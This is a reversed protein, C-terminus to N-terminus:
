DGLSVSALYVAHQAAFARQFAPRAEARAIYQMLNAHPELLDHGRLRIMVSVLMLDGASFEGDIWPNEGLRAALAALRHHIRERILPLREETWDNQGELLVATQLELIPPEVTSVAAFMWNIARARSVPDFPLLGPTTEALHLIIAGSEFLTVGDTELTPIQGFPNRALHPPERLDTFDLLQVEYPVGLEELAWRVRMDRALGRGRDPSARFATIVPPM